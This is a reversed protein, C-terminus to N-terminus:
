AELRVTARVLCAPLRRDASILTIFCGLEWCKYKKLGGWGVVYGAGGVWRALSSVFLVCQASCQTGVEGAHAHIPGPMVTIRVTGVGGWGVWPTTGESPFGSQDYSPAIKGTRPSEQAQMIGNKASTRIIYAM